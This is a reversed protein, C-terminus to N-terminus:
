AGRHRDPLPGDACCYAGRVDEVSMPYVPSGGDCIPTLESALARRNERLRYIPSAGNCHRWGKRIRHDGDQHVERQCRSCIVMGTSM